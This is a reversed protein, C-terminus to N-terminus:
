RTSHVSFDQTTGYILMDSDYTASHAGSPRAQFATATVMAAEIQLAIATVSARTGGWVNVQILGHKMSPLTDDIYSVAEGGVQSYTIYPQVTTIPAVDPFCRNGVLGKLLAYVDSEVTM